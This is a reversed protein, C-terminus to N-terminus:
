LLDDLSEPVSADIPADLHFRCWLELMAMNWIKFPHREIGKSYFAAVEQQVSEPRLIGRRGAIEPSLLHEIVPRLERRAWLDMPVIFSMKRRTRTEMLLCDDLAQFMLYRLKGDPAKEYGPVSRLLDVVRRDVLPSRAEFGHAHSMSDVDRLQLNSVEHHFLLNELRNIPDENEAPKDYMSIMEDPTMDSDISQIFDPQLLNLLSSTSFLLKFHRYQAPVGAKLAELRDIRYATRRNVLKASQFIMGRLFSPISLWRKTLQQLRQFQKFWHSGIFVEDGGTGTLVTHINKPLSGAVLYTNIADGSPQHLHAVIGPLAQKVIDPSITFEHHVTGYHDAILKAYYFENYSEYGSGAGKYGITFTNIPSIGAKAALSVVAGTDTGGSLFFGTNAHDPPIADLVAQELATRLDSAADKGSIRKGSNSSIPQYRIIETKGNHWRLHFGPRLMQISQYITIPDPPCIMSLYLSVAAHNLARTVGEVSLIAKPSSAFICRKTDCIYYLPRSGSLDRFLDLTESLSDYAAISYLGATDNGLTLTQRNHWDLQTKSDIYGDVVWVKGNTRYPQNSSRDASPYSGIFGNKFTHIQADSFSRHSLAAKMKEVDKNSHTGIIGFIAGM